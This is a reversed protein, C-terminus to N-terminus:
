LQEDDKDAYVLKVGGTIKTEQKDRWGLQKLSFVAMTSNIVNFLGLKELQAEKKDMLKKVLTSFEPYDYFTQRPIDNKYAFDALIPVDETDMYEILKTKIDEIEEASYKRPRGGPHSM